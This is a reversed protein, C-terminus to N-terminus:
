SIKICALQTSLLSSHAHYPLALKIRKLLLHLLKLLNSFCNPKIVQRRFRVHLRLLWLLTRKLTVVTEVDIIARFVDLSRRHGVVSLFELREQFHGNVFSM